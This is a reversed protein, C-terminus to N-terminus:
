SLEPVTFSEPERLPMIVARWSKDEPEVVVPNARGHAMIKVKTNQKTEVGSLFRALLARDFVVGNIHGPRKEFELGGTCGPCFVVGNGNCTRCNCDHAGGCRECGTKRQGIGFCSPCNKAWDADCRDCPLTSAWGRGLWRRLHALQWTKGRMEIGLFGKIIEEQVTSAPRWVIEDQVLLMAAGNSVFIWPKENVVLTVPHISLAYSEDGTGIAKIALNERKIPDPLWRLWRYKETNITM